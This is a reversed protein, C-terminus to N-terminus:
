NNKGKRQWKFKRPDKLVKLYGQRQAGNTRQCWIDIENQGCVLNQESLFPIRSKCLISISIEDMQNIKGHIKHPHILQWFFKFQLSSDSPLFNAEIYFYLKKTAIWPALANFFGHFKRITKFDDVFDHRIVSARPM